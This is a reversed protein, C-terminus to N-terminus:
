QASGTKVVKNRPADVDAQLNLVSYGGENAAATYECRTLNENNDYAVCMEVPAGPELTKDIITFYGDNYPSDFEPEYEAARVEPDDYATSVGAPVKSYTGPNGFFHLWEYEEDLRWDKITYTVNQYQQPRDAIAFEIITYAYVQSPIILLPLMVVVVILSLNADWMNM